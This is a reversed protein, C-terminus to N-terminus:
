SGYTFNIEEPVNATLKRSNCFDLFSFPTSSASAKQTPHLLLISSINKVDRSRRSIIEDLDYWFPKIIDPAIVGHIAVCSMRDFILGACYEAATTLLKNPMTTLLSVSSM